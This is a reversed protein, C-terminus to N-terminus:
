SSVSGDGSFSECARAVRFVMEEDFARGIIQLGVPLGDV